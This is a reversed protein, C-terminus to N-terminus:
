GHLAVLLPREGDVEQLHSVRVQRLVVEQSHGRQSRLQRRRRRLQSARLLRLFALGAFHGRAYYHGHEPFCSEVRYGDCAAIPASGERCPHRRGGLVLEVVEQLRKGTNVGRDDSLLLYLHVSSPRAHFVVTVQLSSCGIPADCWSCEVSDICASCTKYSKCSQAAAHHAAFIALCVTGRLHRPEGSWRM